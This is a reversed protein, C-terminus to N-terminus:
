KLLDKAFSSVGRSYRHYSGAMLESLMQPLFKLKGGGQIAKRMQFHRLLADLNETGRYEFEKDHERMRALVAQIKDLEQDFDTETKARDVVKEVHSRSDVKRVPVGVQQSSHQRYKILPKDILELRAAHSIMLATWGDHILPLDTPIPLVLSKFKSRFAMTAGTVLEWRDLIVYAKSRMISRIEPDMNHANSLKRNLLQGSEDVLEADSFVLGVDSNENLVSEILELKEPYWVDDQDSLVIVDGSCLDIAKEFNKTSGLRLANSHVTVQFSSSSAFTRLLEPTEDTSDDDCIIVEDPPRSQAVVSELQEPLFRAGNFTCM